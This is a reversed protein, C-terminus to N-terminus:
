KITIQDLAARFLKERTKIDMVSTQRHDLLIPIQRKRCEVHEESEGNFADKVIEGIPLPKGCRRCHSIVPSVVCPKMPPSGRPPAAKVGRIVAIAQAVTTVAMKMRARKLILEALMVLASEPVTTYDPQM